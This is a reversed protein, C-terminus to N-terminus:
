NPKESKSHAGNRNANDREQTLNARPVSIGPTASAARTPSRPDLPWPGQGSGVVPRPGPGQGRPGQANNQGQCQGQMPEAQQGNGGPPQLVGDIIQRKPQGDARQPLQGRESQVRAQRAVEELGSGVINKDGVVTVGSNININLNRPRHNQGEENRNAALYGSQNLVRITDRAVEAPNVPTFGIISGHGRVRLSSNVDLTFTDNNKQEQQQEAGADSGEDSSEPDMNAPAASQPNTQPTNAQPVNPRQLASPGGFHNPYYPPPPNRTRESYVANHAEQFARIERIYRDRRQEDTLDFGGWLHELQNPLQLDRPNPSGQQSPQPGQSPTQGQNQFQRQSPPRGQQGLM